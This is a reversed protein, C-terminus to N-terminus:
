CIPIPLQLEVEGGEAIVTNWSRSKWHLLNQEMHRINEGGERDSLPYAGFDYLSLSDHGSNIPLTRYTRSLLFSIAVTQIEMRNRRKFNAESNPHFSNPYRSPFSSRDEVHGGICNGTPSVLGTSFRM